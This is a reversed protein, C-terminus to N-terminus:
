CVYETGDQGFNNCFLGRFCNNNNNYYKQPRKRAKELQICLAKTIIVFKIAELVWKQLSNKQLSKPRSPLPHAIHRGQDGIWGEGTCLNIAALVGQRNEIYLPGLPESGQFEAQSFMQLFHRAFMEQISEHTCKRLCEKICIKSKGPVVYTWIM